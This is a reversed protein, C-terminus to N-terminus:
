RNWILAAAAAPDATGDCDDRVNARLGPCADLVDRLPFVDPARSRALCVPGSASWAAEVRSANSSRPRVGADDWADVRRGETTFSRGDGCYDARMMRVCADFYPRLSRGTATHRWPAYGRMVCKGQAGATCAIRVSHQRGPSNDDVLPFGLRQGYQDPRCTPTWATEGSRRTSLAYLDPGSDAGAAVADIRMEISAGDDSRSAFILGVLETGQLTNGSEFVVRFRGETADIRAGDHVVVAREATAVSSHGMAGCIGILLCALIRPRRM